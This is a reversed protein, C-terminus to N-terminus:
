KSQMLAQNIQAELQELQEVTLGKISLELRGEGEFKRVEGTRGGFNFSSKLSRPRIQKDAALAERLRSIEKTSIGKEVATAVIKLTEGLGHKRFFLTLEYLPKVGSLDEAEVAAQIVADPLATLALTKSVQGESVGLYEALQSQTTVVKKDLLMQWGLADDLANGNDREKNLLRSRIYLELDSPPKPVIEVLLEPWNILRAARLKTEGDILVFREGDAYAQAPMLQGNNKLSEAMAKVRIPSYIRRANMPNEDILELPANVLIPESPSRSTVSPNPIREDVKPSDNLVAVTNESAASIGMTGLINNFGSAESPLTRRKFGAM